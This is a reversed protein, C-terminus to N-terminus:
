KLTVLLSSVSGSMPFEKSYYCSSLSKGSFEGKRQWLFKWTNKMGEFLSFLKSIHNPSTSSELALQIVKTTIRLENTAVSSAHLLTSLNEHGANQSRLKIKPSYIRNDWKVVGYVSNYLSYKLPTEANIAANFMKVTSVRRSTIIRLYICPIKLNVPRRKIRGINIIRFLKREVLNALIVVFFKHIEM